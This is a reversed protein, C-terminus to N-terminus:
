AKEGGPVPVDALISAVVDDHRTGELEADPQLLFRHRLIPAALEKIDDPVVYNRGDAAATVQACLLLAISARPSAGLDVASHARTRGVVKAIYTLIGPDVRVRRAISRMTLIEEATAVRSLGVGELDSPDFGSMYHELLTTEVEETPHDVVVKMLFRDLQAEPLPYTGESEIPNQTALVFFPAPLKRTTGDVSVQFDGMAELLAAQTKAPARNIEDALLIQTFVPGPHFVFEDEKPNFVNGGTVDSPMLDPTFQIRRFDVGLVHSLTRALLTKGIGPPGELLVHGGALMAILTSRVVHRQGLVVRRAETEM